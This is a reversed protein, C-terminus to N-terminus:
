TRTRARCSKGKEPGTPGAGALETGEEESDAIQRPTQPNIETVPTSLDHGTRFLNQSDIQSAKQQPASNTFSPLKLVAESTPLLGLDTYVNATLRMDSHRMVEMAVRPLTGALALNTALTHRLSHFDARHGKENIYEIGAAKLDAKFKVMRSPFRGAFVREGTKPSTPRIVKLERVLDPHLSIIAKKHNKTTSARVNLFPKAVDLHVDEWELQALEARRLGTFVAALYIVKRPGAVQLLRAIEESSFARRVRTETGNKQVKSVNELPNLDTRRVKKLWRMFASISALYENLTKPAKSQRSRWAIFSDVTVDKLHSWHCESFLRSIQKDVIYVYEEDRGMKQLDAIYDQLHKELSTKSAERINAPALIGASEQQKQRVIEELRQQAVRKDSTHLPIDTIKSDGDLRYRGRYMRAVVAKGNKTRKPRFLTLIM